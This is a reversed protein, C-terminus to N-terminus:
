TPWALARRTTTIVGAPCTSACCPKARAISRIAAAASPAAIM